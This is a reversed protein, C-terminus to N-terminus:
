PIFFRKGSAPPCTQFHCWNPTSQFSEFWFGIEEMMEVNLMIWDRLSQDSDLIDCAQGTLHKSHPANSKGAAILGAQQAQDRLGSTVTMPKGWAARVKNIRELLVQLNADIEPTTTYNHPNLETLSIM